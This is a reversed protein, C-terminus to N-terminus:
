HYNYWSNIFCWLQPKPLTYNMFLIALHGLTEHDCMNEYALKWKEDSILLYFTRITSYKFSAEIM